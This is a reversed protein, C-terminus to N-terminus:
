EEKTEGFLVKEIKLIIVLKEKIKGIGYIFESKLGSVTPLTPEIESTDITIVESVTDVIFGFKRNDIGVIIIKTKNTIQTNEIGFRKRLDLVPIVAGRLNIVGEIFPPSNPIVTPKSYKEIYFVNKIPVAYTVDGVSFLIIQLRESSKNLNTEM